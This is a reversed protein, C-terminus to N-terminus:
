AAVEVRVPRRPCEPRHEMASTSRYSFLSTGPDGPKKRAVVVAGCGDCTIRLAARGRLDPALLMARTADRRFAAKSM